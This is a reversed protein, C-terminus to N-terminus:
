SCSGFSSPPSARKWSSGGFPIFRSIPSLPGGRPPNPRLPGHGGCRGSRRPAMSHSARPTPSRDRDALDPSGRRDLRRGSSPTRGVMSGAAVASDCASHARRVSRGRIGARSGRNPARHPEDRCRPRRGSAKRDRDGRDRPALAAPSRSIGAHEHDPRQLRPRSEPPRLSPCSRVGWLRHPSGRLFRRVVAELLRIRTWTAGLSSRCAHPVGRCAAPLPPRSRPSTKPRTPRRVGSDTRTINTGVSGTRPIAQQRPSPQHRRARRAPLDPRRRRYAKGIAAEGMAAGGSM